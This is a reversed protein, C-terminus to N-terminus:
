RLRLFRTRTRWLRVRRRGGAEQDLQLEVDVLASEPSGQELHDSLLQCHPRISGLCPIRIHERVRDHASGREDRVYDREQPDVHPVGAPRLVEPEEEIRDIEDLRPVM